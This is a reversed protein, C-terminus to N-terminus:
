FCCFFHLISTPVNLYFLNSFWFYNWKYRDWYPCHFSALVFLFFRCSLCFLLNWSLIFCKIKTTNPISISKKRRKWQQWFVHQMHKVSQIYVDFFIYKEQFTYPVCVIFWHFVGGFVLIEKEFFVWSCFFLFSIINFICVTKYRLGQFKRVAPNLKRYPVDFVMCVFICLSM